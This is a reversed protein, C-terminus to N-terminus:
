DAPGDDDGGDIYPNQDDSRMVLVIAVVFFAIIALPIAAIHLAIIRILNAASEKM